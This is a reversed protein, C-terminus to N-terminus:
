EEGYEILIQEFKIGSELTGLCDPDTNCFNLISSNKYILGIDRAYIAQRIDQFILTDPDNNEFITLIETFTGAPTDFSGDTDTIEYDDVPLSNFLNGDWVRNLRAPFAIKVLPINNEVVIAHNETRRSTWVSDLNWSEQENVRSFRHLVYSLENGTSFTDVVTEKLQFEVTDNPAFLSITIQNVRYTRFNGIEQPFYSYGVIDTTPEFNDSCSILLTCLAYIWGKRMSSTTKILVQLM